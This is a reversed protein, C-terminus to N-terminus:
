ASMLAETDKVMKVVSRLEATWVILCDCYDNVALRAKVDEVKGRCFRFTATGNLLASNGNIIMKLIAGSGGPPNIDISFFIVNGPNITALTENIPQPPESMPLSLAVFSSMSKPAELEIEKRTIVIKACGSTIQESTDAWWFPNDKFNIM